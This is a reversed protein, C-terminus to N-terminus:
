HSLIMVFYWSLAFSVLSQNRHQTSTSLKPQTNAWSCGDVGPVYCCSPSSGDGSCHSSPGIPLCSFGTMNLPKASIKVFGGMLLLPAYHQARRRMCTCKILDLVLSSYQTTNISSHGMRCWEPHHMCKDRNFGTCWIHKNCGSEQNKALRPLQRLIFSDNCFWGVRQNILWRHTPPCRVNVSHTESQDLSPCVALSLSCAISLVSQSISHVCFSLRDLSHRSSLELPLAVVLRCSRDLYSLVYQSFSQAISQDVHTVSQHSQRSILNISLPDLSQNNVEEHTCM